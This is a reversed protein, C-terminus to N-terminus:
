SIPPQTSRGLRLLPYTLSHVYLGNDQHRRLQRAIEEGDYFGAAVEDRIMKLSGALGRLKGRFRAVIYWERIRWFYHWTLYAIGLWALLDLEMIFLGKVLTVSSLFFLFSLVFPVIRGWPQSLHSTIPVPLQKALSPSLSDATAERTVPVLEADLLNTLVYTTLRPTHMWKADLYIRAQEFAEVKLDAMEGTNEPGYNEKFSSLRNLLEDLQRKKDPDQDCFVRYLSAIEPEQNWQM